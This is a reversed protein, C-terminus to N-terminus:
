FYTIKLYIIKKVINILISEIVQIFDLLHTVNKEIVYNFLHM